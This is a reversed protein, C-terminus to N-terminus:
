RGIVDFISAVSANERARKLRRLLEEDSLVRAVLALLRLHAEDGTGAFGIALRVTRGPIWEVGDPIPAVVLANGLVADRVDASGHPLAVDTTVITNAQEEKRLMGDVYEATVASASVMADGIADIVERKSAYRRPQLLRVIPRQMAANM